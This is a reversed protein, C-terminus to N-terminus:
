VGDISNGDKEPGTDDDLGFDFDSDRLIVGPSALSRACCIRCKLSCFGLAVCSSIALGDPRSYRIFIRRVSSVIDCTYV